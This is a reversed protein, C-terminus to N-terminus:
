EEQQYCNNKKPFVIIGILSEYKNEREGMIVSRVSLVTFFTGVEDGFSRGDGLSRCGLKAVLEGKTLSSLELAIKDSEVKSIHRRDDLFSRVQFFSRDEGDKKFAKVDYFAVVAYKFLPKDKKGLRGPLRVLVETGDPVGDKWQRVIVLHDRGEEDETREGDSMVQLIAPCKLSSLSKSSILEAVEEPSLENCANSYFM